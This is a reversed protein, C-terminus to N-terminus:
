NRHDQGEKPRAPGKSSVKHSSSLTRCGRTSVELVDGRNGLTDPVGTAVGRESVVVPSRPSGLGSLWKPVHRHRQSFLGTRAGASHTVM